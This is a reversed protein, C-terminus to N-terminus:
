NFLLMAILPKIGSMDTTAGITYEMDTVNSYTARVTITYNSDENLGSITANHSRM